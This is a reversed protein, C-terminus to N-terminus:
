RNPTLDFLLYDTSDTLLPYNDYLMTELESQTNLEDPLTILFYDYGATLRAFMSSFDDLNGGRMLTLNLESTSPWTGASVWGYYRLRHGYDHSIAIIKGDIPLEAAIAQWGAPEQTYDQVLLTVRSNWASYVLAVLIVSYGAVQLLKSQRSLIQIIPAAFPALSFAIAPLLPLSYYNHSIILSPLLLGTIGYGIWLGLAIARARPAFLFIGALSVFFLSIDLINGQIFNLWRIYFGPELLMDSFSTLWFAIYGGSRAGEDLIYYAAPILVAIAAVCYVQMQRFARKIGWTTLVTFTLLLGIQCAAPAKVLVAIGSLLGTAAAWRWNQEEGWRYAAYAAWLVMTAMLGDPQFSRSAIIGFPLFLYFILALIAGPFSAARCSLMFLALGGLMWFLIAYLRAIWLVEAGVLWYTAAVVREMIPPEYVTMEHWMDVAAQAREPTYSATSLDTWKSSQLATQAASERSLMQAYMGRAIIAAHLQRAPHFDLPQDTLDILRLVFGTLLLGVVLAARTWSPSLKILKLRSFLRRAAILSKHM